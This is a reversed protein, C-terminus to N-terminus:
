FGISARCHGAGFLRDIYIEAILAWPKGAVARRGVASSITEDASPLAGGAILYKPAAVVVHALQDLAILAQLTVRQLRRGLGGGGNGGQRPDLEGM